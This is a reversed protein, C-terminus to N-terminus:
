IEPELMWSESAGDGWRYFPCVVGISTFSLLGCPRYSLFSLHKIFSYKIKYNHFEPNKQNKELVYIFNFM